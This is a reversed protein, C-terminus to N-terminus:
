KFLSKFISWLVSNLIWVVFQNMLVAKYCAIGIYMICSRRRKHMFTYLADPIQLMVMNFYKGQQNFHFDEYKREAEKGKERGCIDSLWRTQDKRVWHIGLTGWYQSANACHDPSWQAPTEAHPSVTVGQFGEMCEERLVSPPVQQGSSSSCFRRGARCFFFLFWWSVRTLDGRVDYLLNYVDQM